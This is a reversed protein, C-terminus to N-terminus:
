HPVSVGDALDPAASGQRFRRAAIARARVQALKHSHLESPAMSALLPTATPMGTDTKDVLGIASRIDLVVRPALAGELPWPAAAASAGGGGGGSGGGDGYGDGGQGGSPFLVALESPTLPVTHSAFRTCPAAAGQPTKRSWCQQRAGQATVWFKIRSKSHDDNKNQCFSSGHGTVCVDYGLRQAPGLVRAVVKSVNIGKYMAHMRRVIGELATKKPGSFLEEVDTKRRRQQGDEVVVEGKRTTRVVALAPHGPYLTWGPTEPQADGGRISAEMMAEVVPERLAMLVDADVVAGSAGDIRCRPTYMSATADPVRGSRGCGACPATTALGCCAPCPRDKVQWAWRLGRKDGYVARDVKREWPEDSGCKVGDTDLRGIIASAIFVAQEVSVYLSPFVIHLGARAYVGAPADRQIRVGSALVLAQFTRATVEECRADYFRVVEAHVAAAIAVWNEQAAVVQAANNFVLDIDLYMRMCSDVPKNETLTWLTGASWDRVVALALERTAHLPVAICGLGQLGGYMYHSAAASCAPATAGAAARKRASALAFGNGTVFQLVCPRSGKAACANPPLGRERADFFVCHPSASM